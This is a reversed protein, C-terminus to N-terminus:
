FYYNYRCDGTALVGIALPSWDMGFGEQQHGSFTFTPKINDCRSEKEYKKLINTDEVAQLQENLNWINVRGLESWSAAYVDNGIRTSRIRNICGQHRTLACTMQPKKEPDEEEPEEDSDDSEEDDDRERSTRHLNSMRMVIVNNVHTRAAQTGAVIYATLPFQDRGDGLEDNIIDFSLCPAGTHAQNIISYPICKKKLYSFLCSYLNFLIVQHLMIYASEDCVLEEDKELPKGPLYVEKEEEEKDDGDTSSESDDSEEEMEDEEKVIDMVQDSEM